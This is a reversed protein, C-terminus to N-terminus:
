ALHALLPRVEDAFREIQTDREEYPGIFDLVVHRVGARHFAEIAAAIDEARGLAAYKQAPKRFDMAYRHSLAKAAVDLAAEHTDDIRLFLLHGTGFRDVARGAGRAAAAIKDMAARYMDPTVVYSIWGDSLRGARELAADSRGGCWLPPGGAQRPAPELRVEPFAYFPGDHSVAEGTWLKRLVEIAESMRAGRETVPVGCAAFENPFEGGVGTGFILRGETLHDLTAVQKAVLTPHRLPLLFVATGFTLRQSFASAQALQLLPDLIPTTFAVHDGVWLSDFGLREAQAVLARADGIDPRWPGTAPETRRYLTQIGFKLKDDLPLDM